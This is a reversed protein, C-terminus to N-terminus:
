NPLRVQVTAGDARITPAGSLGAPISDRDGETPVLSGDEAVERAVFVPRRAHPALVLQVGAAALATADLATSATDRGLILVDVAVLPPLQGASSVAPALALTLHRTRVLTWRAQGKSVFEVRIDGIVADTAGEVEVRRARDPTVLAAGLAHQPPALVRAVPREALLALATHAVAGESAPVVLGDIEPDWRPLARDLVLRSTRSGVVVLSDDGSRVYVTPARGGFEAVVYTAADDLLRPGGTVALVPPVALLAVVSGYVAVRPVRLNVNAREFLDRRPRGLVLVAAGLCAYSLAVHGPGFGLVPLSAGPVAAALQAARILYELPLWAAWAVTEAAPWAAASWIALPAGTAMIWPAALLALLNAPVAVVQFREFTHAIIPTVMVSAALTGALVEAGLRPLRVRERFFNALPPSLVVLGLTGAFSLQFGADGLADPQVLVMAAGALGLSTLVDADRGAIWSLLLLEGMLTARVVSPEGGALVAYLPLLLAALAVGYRGVAWGALRRVALAILTINFGSIAVVHILGSNVFDDRLPGPLGSRVGVLMASLLSAHPEPLARHLSRDIHRRLKLLPASGGPDAPRVRRVSADLVQGAFATRHGTLANRPGPTAPEFVGRVEVRAGTPAAGRPVFLEVRGAVTLPQTSGPLLVREVQITRRSGPRVDVVTGEITVMAGEPALLPPAQSSVHHGGRALGLALALAAVILFVGAGPLRSLAGAGGAVALVAILWWPVAGWWAALGVGLLVAAAAWTTM